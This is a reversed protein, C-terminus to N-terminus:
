TASMSGTVDVLLVVDPKPPIEPTSVVKSVHFSAGPDVVQTVLAPLVGPKTLATGFLALGALVSTSFRMILAKIVTDPTLDLSFRYYIALRNEVRRLFYPSFLLPEPLQLEPSGPYGKM